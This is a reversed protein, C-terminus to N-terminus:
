GNDYDEPNYDTTDVISPPFQVYNVLYPDSGYEVSKIRQIYITEKDIQLSPIRFDYDTTIEKGLLDTAVPKSGQDLSSLPLHEIVLYDPLSYGRENTGVDVSTDTGLYYELPKVRSSKHFLIVNLSEPYVQTSPYIMGDVHIKARSALYDAIVQTPLYDSEADNPMVPATMKSSLIKLFAARKLRHTFGMDFISGKENINQLASLSLLKLPRIIQFKAVAVQSGVPPRVESITTMQNIAGYFVSIGKANMRGASAVAFPPPGLYIDPRKLAETLEQNRQFVRARYLESIDTGPGIEILVPSADVTNMSDIESFITELQRFGESNYFRSETKLSREFNGWDQVMSGSSVINKVYFSDSDYDSEEWYTDLDLHENYLHQQIQVAAEKCIGAAGMIAKIVPSGKRIFEFGPVENIRFQDYDTPSNSSKYYHISFAEHVRHALDIISFAMGELSCFSCKVYTGKLEIECRLFAEEVCSACIYTENDESM